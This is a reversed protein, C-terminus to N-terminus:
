AEAAMALHDNVGRSHGAHRRGRRRRRAPFAFAVSVPVPARIATRPRLTPACPASLRIESTLHRIDPTYYDNRSPQSDASIRFGVDSMKSTLSVITAIEVGAPLPPMPTTRREPGSDLAVALRM